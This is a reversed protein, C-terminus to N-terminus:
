DPSFAATSPVWAAQAGSLRRNGPSSRSCSRPTAGPRKAMPDRVQPRRAALVGSVGRLHRRARLRLCQRHALGIPLRRALPADPRRFRATPRSSRHSRGHKRTRSGEVHSGCRSAGSYATRGAGANEYLGTPRDPAGHVALLGAPVDRRRDATRAHDHPRAESGSAPSHLSTREVARADALGPKARGPAHPPSALRCIGAMSVSPRAGWLNASSSGSWCCAVRRCQEAAAIVSLGTDAM